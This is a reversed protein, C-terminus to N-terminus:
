SGAVAATTCKEVLIGSSEAELTLTPLNGWVVVLVLDLVLMLLRKGMWGGMCGDKYEDIIASNVNGHHCHYLLAHILWMMVNALWGLRPQRGM